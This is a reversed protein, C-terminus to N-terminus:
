WCFAIWQWRSHQGLEETSAGGHQPGSISRGRLAVTESTRSGERSDMEVQGQQQHLQQHQQQMKMLPLYLAMQWLRSRLVTAQRTEWALGSAQM